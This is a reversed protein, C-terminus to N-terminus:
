KEDQIFNTGFSDDMVDSDIPESRPPNVAPAQVTPDLTETPIPDRTQDTMTRGGRDLQAKPSTLSQFTEDQNKGIFGTLNGANVSGSSNRSALADTRRQTRDNESEGHSHTNDVPKSGGSSLAKAIKAIGGKKGGLAAALGVSVFAM